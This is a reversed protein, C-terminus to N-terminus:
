WFGQYRWFTGLTQQQQWIHDFAQVQGLAVTHVVPYAIMALTVAPLLSGEYGLYGHILV